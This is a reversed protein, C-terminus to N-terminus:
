SARHSDDSRHCAVIRVWGTGSMADTCPGAKAPPNSRAIIHSRRTAPRDAVNLRGSNAQPTAM